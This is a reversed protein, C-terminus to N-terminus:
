HPNHLRWERYRYLGADVGAERPLPAGENQKTRATIYADVNSPRVRRRGDETMSVDGLKGADTLMSAYPRSTGLREAAEAITLLVDARVAGAEASESIIRQSEARLM